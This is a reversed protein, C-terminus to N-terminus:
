ERIENNAEMLEELLELRKQAEEEDLKSIAFGAHAIVYDGVQVQEDLLDLYAVRQVGGVDTVVSGDERFSIVKGPFGVCMARPSM